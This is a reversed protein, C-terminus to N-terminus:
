EYRLLIEKAWAIADTTKIGRTPAGVWLELNEIRNDDRVGNRHHVTENAYLKRGLSKEMVFRHELISKGIGPQIVRYGDENITGGKWQHSLDGKNCKRCYGRANKGKLGENRGLNDGCHACKGYFGNAIRTARWKNVYQRRKIPDKYM